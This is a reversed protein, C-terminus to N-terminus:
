GEGFVVAYIEILRGPNSAHGLFRKQQFSGSLAPSERPYNGRGIGRGFREDGEGLLQLRSSGRQQFFQATALLCRLALRARDARSQVAEAEPSMLRKDLGPCAV